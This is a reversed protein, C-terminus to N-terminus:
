LSVHLARRYGHGVGARDLALVREFAGDIEAPHRAARERRLPRLPAFTGRRIATPMGSVVAANRKLGRLKARKMPSGKFAISNRMPWRSSDRARADACGQRRDDRAAFRMRGCRAVLVEREVSVGGPLHRMRLGARRDVASAREPIEGKLEITLYSICRKSDLVHPTSSRARDPVRRPVAARAAIIPRSRRTPRWSSISCCRASFFSRGAGRISSRRTRASGVSGPAGRSTASSFRGPTSTRRAACRAGSTQTSGGICCRRLREVMVRSLRRRARIARGPRVARARRLEHRRRDRQTAGDFPLRSDRRKEATRAIYAMEGDYGRALWEDFAAGDGGARADHHRRSRLRTRLGASQDDGRRDHSKRVAWRAYRVIDDAPPVIDGDGYATYMRWSTTARRAAASLFGGTGAARAFVGASASCRWALAPDRVGRWALRVAVSPWSRKSVGDPNVARVGHAGNVFSRGDLIAPMPAGLAALASPMVDVTRRPTEALPRNTLLPVLMHERHLAGHSSVHRIPEYRARFDWDRAASLVIDGSRTSSVLHVLQM